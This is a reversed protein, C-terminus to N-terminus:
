HFKLSTLINNNVPRSTTSSTRLARGTFIAEPSMGLFALMALRGNKIEKLKLEKMEKESKTGFGLPNFIPGGPYAPDGSGGLYKELGLFYHKWLM